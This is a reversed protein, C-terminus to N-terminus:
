VEVAGFVGDFGVSEQEVASSVIVMVYFIWLFLICRGIVM